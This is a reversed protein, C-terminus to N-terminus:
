RSYTAKIDEGTIQPLCDALLGTWGCECKAQSAEDVETTVEQLDTCGCHPCKADPIENIMEMGTM